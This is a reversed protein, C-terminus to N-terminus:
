RQVSRFLWESSTKERWWNIHSSWSLLLTVSDFVGNQLFWSSFATDYIWVPNTCYAFWHFICCTQRTGKTNHSASKPQSNSSGVGRWSGDRYQLRQSQGQVSQLCCQVVFFSMLSRRHQRILTLHVPSHSCRAGVEKSQRWCSASGGRGDREQSEWRGSEAGGGAAKFVVVGLSLTLMDVVEVSQASRELVIHLNKCLDLSFVHSFATQKKWRERLQSAEASESLM